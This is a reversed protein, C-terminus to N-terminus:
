MGERGVDGGEREGQMGERGGKGGVDGGEREGQM